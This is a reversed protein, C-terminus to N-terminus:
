AFLLDTAPNFDPSGVLTAVLKGDHRLEGDPEYTVRAAGGAFLAASLMIKDVGSRFDLIRDANTPGAAVTFLFQDKGAGGELVDNGAGGDLRDNGYGSYLKDAGAGGALTDHGPGSRITDNGGLGDLRNAFGDGYLRNNAATGVLRLDVSGTGAAFHLSPGVWYAVDAKGDGNFDGVELSGSFSFENDLPEFFYGEGNNLLLEAKGFVETLIDKHGDGNFDAFHLYKVWDTSAWAVDVRQSSEDAFKGGGRNILVQIARGGVSGNRQVDLVIDLRGDGNLDVAHSDIVGAEIGFPAAPLAKSSPTFRGSGDNLLLRSGPANFKGLFLDQDGDGDFDGFLSTTFSEMGSSVMEPLRGAGVTFRGAGDNLLIRPGKGQWGSLDGTYLDIDGDGDVDAATASHTFDARRPLHTATRDYWKGGSGSLLLQNQWGPFPDRDYGHDAIFVDDRGDGNFDAIVLERPHVTRPITSGGFVTTTGPLQFSGNGNGLHVTITQAQDALPYYFWASLLDLRGDGNFDMAFVEHVASNNTRGSPGVPTSPAFASM